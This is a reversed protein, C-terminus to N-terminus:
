NPNVISFGHNQQSIHSQNVLVSHSALNNVNVSEASAM